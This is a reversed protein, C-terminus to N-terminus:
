AVAEGLPGSYTSDDGGTVRRHAERHRRLRVFRWILAALILMAAAAAATGTFGVAWDLAGAVRDTFLYGLGSYATAWILLAVSDAAVFVTRGIGALGASAAILNATGPMFKSPLIYLPGVTELKRVVVLVCANPNSTLGCVMDVLRRGRWRSISFWGFDAVLGGTAAALIIVPLGPGGGAAAAGAVVLVPVSAIPAGAFEAFGVALLLWYGYSELLLLVTEM